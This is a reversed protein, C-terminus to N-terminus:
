DKHYNYGHYFANEGAIFWNTILAFMGTLTPLWGHPLLIFFVILMCALEMWFPFPQKQM